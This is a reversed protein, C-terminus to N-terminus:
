RAIIQVSNSIFEKNRNFEKDIRSLGELFTEYDVQEPIIPEIDDEEDTLFTDSDSDSTNEDRMEDVDFVKELKKYFKETESLLIDIMSVRYEIVIKEFVRVTTIDPRKGPVDHLHKWLRCKEVLADYLQRGIQEYRPQIYGEFREKLRENFPQFILMDNIEELEMKVDEKKETSSQWLPFLTSITKPFADIIGNFDSLSEMEPLKYDIGNASTNEVVSLKHDIKNDSHNHDVEVENDSHADNKNESHNHDVENDSHAKDIEVKNDDSHAEDIEVENDSHAEDNNNLKGGFLRLSEIDLVFE